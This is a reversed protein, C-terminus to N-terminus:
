SCRRDGQARGRCTKVDPVARAAPALARRDDASARANRAAAIGRLDSHLAFVGISRGLPLHASLPRRLIPQDGRHRARFQLCLGPGVRARPYPVVRDPLSRNWFFNRSAFFGLPFGLFLMMTDDINIQTYAVVTIISCRGCTSMEPSFAVVAAFYSCARPLERAM